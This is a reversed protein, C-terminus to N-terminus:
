TPTPASKTEPRPQACARTLRPMGAMTGVWMSVVPEAHPCGQETAGHLSALSTSFTTADRLEVWNSRSPFVMANHLSRIIGRISSWGAPPAPNKRNPDFCADWGLQTANRWLLRSHRKCRAKVLGAHAEGPSWCMSRDMPCTHIVRRVAMAEAGRDRSAHSIPSRLTISLEWPCGTAKTSMSSSIIPSGNIAGANAQAPRAM